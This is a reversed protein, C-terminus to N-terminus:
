SDRREAVLAHVAEPVTRPTSVLDCLAKEAAAALEPDDLLPTLFLAIERYLDPSAEEPAYLWRTLASRRAANTKLTDYFDRRRTYEAESDPIGCYFAKDLEAVLVPREVAADDIFSLLTEAPYYFGTGTVQRQALLLAFALVPGSLYLMRYLIIEGMVQHHGFNRQFIWDISLLAACAYEFDGRRM